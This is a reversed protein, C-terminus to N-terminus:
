EEKKKRPKMLKNKEKSEKKRSENTRYNRGCDACCYKKGSNKKLTLYQGCMPNECLKRVVLDPRDFLLSLYVACNLDPVQWNCLSLASNYSPRISTTNYELELSVVSHAIEILRKEYSQRIADTAFIINSWKFEDWLSVKSVDLRTTNRLIYYLNIIKREMDTFHYSNYLLRMFINDQFLIAGSPDDTDIFFGDFYSVNLNIDYHSTSKAESANHIIRKLSDTPIVEANKEMTCSSANKPVKNTMKIKVDGNEFALDNPIIYHDNEYEDTEVLKYPPLIDKEDKKPRMNVERPNKKLFDYAKKVPHEFSKYRLTDTENTADSSVIESEPITKIMIQPSFLLATTYTFIKNYSSEDLPHHLITHLAWTIQFRKIYECIPPLHFKEYIEHSVPFFFGFNEIFNKLKDDIITSTDNTPLSLLKAVVEEDSSADTEDIACLGTTMNFCFPLSTNTSIVGLFKSAEGKSNYNISMNMKAASNSFLFKIGTVALVDTDYKKDKENQEIAKKEQESLEELDASKKISTDKM